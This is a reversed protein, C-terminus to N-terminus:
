QRGWVAEDARTTSLPFRLRRADPQDEVGLRFRRRWYCAVNVMSINEKM